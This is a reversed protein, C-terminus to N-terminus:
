PVYVLCLALILIELKSSALTAVLDTGDAAPEMRIHLWRLGRGRDRLSIEEVPVIESATKVPQWPIEYLHPRLADRVEQPSLESSTVTREVRFPNLWRHFEYWHIPSKTADM